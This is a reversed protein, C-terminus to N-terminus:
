YLFDPSKNSKKKAQGLPGSLKLMESAIKDFDEILLFLKVLLVNINFFSINM